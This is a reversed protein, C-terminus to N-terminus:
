APHIDARARKLASKLEALASRVGHQLENFAADGSQNLNCMKTEAAQYGARLEAIVMAKATTKTLDAATRVSAIRAKLETLEGELSTTLAVRASDSERRMVRLTAELDAKEGAAALKLEANISSIEHRLVDLFAGIRNQQAERAADLNGTLEDIRANTKTRAEAVETKLNVRLRALDATATDITSQLTTVSDHLTKRRADFEAKLNAKLEQATPSV